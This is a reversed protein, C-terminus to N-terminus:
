NISIKFLITTFNSIGLIIYQNPGIEKISIGRNSNYTGFDYERDWLVTGNKDVKVVKIIEKTNGNSDGIETSGIFVFGGDSTNEIHEGFDNQGYDYSKEWLIKGSNDYKCLFYDFSDYQGTYGFILSNNEQDIVISKGIGNIKKSWNPILNINFKALYEGAFFYNGDNDIQFDYYGSCSPECNGRELSKTFITDGEANFDLLLNKSMDTYSLLIYENSNIQHAKIGKDLYGDLYTKCWLSDGNENTKLLFSYTEVWTDGYNYEGTMLFGGDSTQIVSGVRASSNFEYKKEWIKQGNFDCKRLYTIFKNKSSNYSDYYVLVQNDNTIILENQNSKYEIIFLDTNMKGLKILFDTNFLDDNKECNNFIISSLLVTLLILLIRM